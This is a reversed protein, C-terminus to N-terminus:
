PESSKEEKKNKNKLSVVRRKKKKKIRLSVVRIIWYIYYLIIYLLSLSRYLISIQSWFLCRENSGQKILVFVCLCCDRLKFIFTTCNRWVLICILLPISERFLSLSPLDVDKWTSRTLGAMLRAVQMGAIVVDM